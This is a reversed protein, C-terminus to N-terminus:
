HSLVLHDLRREECVDILRPSWSRTDPKGSIKWSVSKTPVLWKSKRCCRIRNGALLLLSLFVLVGAFSLGIICLTEYDYVFDADPDVNPAGASSM